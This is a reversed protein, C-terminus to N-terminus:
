CPFNLSSSIPAICGSENGDIDFEINIRDVRTANIAEAPVPIADNQVTATIATATNIPVFETWNIRADDIQDQQTTTVEARAIRSLADASTNLTGKRYTVSFQYSQLFLAWRTQRNNGSFRM